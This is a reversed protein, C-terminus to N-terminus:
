ISLLATPSLVLFYIMPLCNISYSKVSFKNGAAVFNPWPLAKVPMQSETWLSPTQRLAHKSVCGGCCVGGRLASVGWGSVGWLLCGGGGPASVGWVLCGRAYVGWVLCVGLGSM